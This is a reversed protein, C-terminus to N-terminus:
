QSGSLLPKGSYELQTTQNSSVKGTSWLDGQNKALKEASSSVLIEFATQQEGRRSSEIIWSLRPNVVDIGSPNTLYECRLNQISVGSAFLTATLFSFLILLIKM